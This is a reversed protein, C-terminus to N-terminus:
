VDDADSSEPWKIGSSVFDDGGLVAAVASLLETGVDSKLVYGQAGIKLAKRVVEMDNIQTLFIIKAGHVVQRIRNAAELGNLKPLGLDLVILDPKLVQAKQVAEWGDAAEGVVQLEGNGALISCVSRRWPEFDDVVLVRISPRQTDM